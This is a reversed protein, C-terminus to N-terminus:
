KIEELTEKDVAIIYSSFQVEIRQLNVLQPIFGDSGIGSGWSFNSNKTLERRPSTLPKHMNFGAIKSTEISEKSNNKNIIELSKDFPEEVYEVYIFGTKRETDFQSVGKVIGGNIKNVILVGLEETLIM